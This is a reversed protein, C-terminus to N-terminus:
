ATALFSRAHEVRDRDLDGEGWYHVFRGYHQKAKNMEGREEYIRGLYYLSRIYATPSQLRDAAMRSVKLFREEALEPKGADLYAEGLFFWVRANDGGNAALLKEAQELERLGLAMDGRYQARYAAIEHRTRKWAPGPIGSTQEDYLASLRDSEDWNGRSAQILSEFLIGVLEADTGAGLQQARRAAGLAREPHDLLFLNAAVAVNMFGSVQGPTTAAAATQELLTMAETSRGQYLRLAARNLFENAKAWPMPLKGVEAALSDAAEWDEELLALGLDAFAMFPYGPRLERVRDLAAKSEELRGARMLLQARGNHVAFSEPNQRLFEEHVEFAKQVQGTDFYANALANRHGPFMEVTNRLIELHEIAEPYMGLNMMHSGAMNGRIDSLHPQRQLIELAIEIAKGQTRANRGHYWQQIYASEADTLRDVHEIAREAYELGKDMRGLNSNTVALKALAMAFEPDEEVAKEFLTIAEEEKLEGHLREAEVFYRYAVPSSTTVDALSRDTELSVPLAITQRVNRTLDDVRAFLANEGEAVISDSTLIEGTGAEQIKISIRINDGLKAFSGTIVTDANAKNAVENVVDFSTIREDLKEMDKLIQYLRDTGLVRLDPSQSLDTVLMDTLGSRLWDLEPDGSLNDFYLVAVSPRDKQAAVEQGPARGPSTGTGGGLLLWATLGAIAILAAAFALPMWKRGTSSQVAPISMASDPLAGSEIERRLGVLENRIDLASQFRKRPDKELCHAIIRGLHRPMQVNLTTVSDPSDRLISSILDASTEGQFPRRGTAMEYLIIGLSFIDSRHDLEKGQVQEPSMYPVTGLVHGEQTLAETPATEAKEDADERLKALGFDLVKVRDHQNVMVNAPKLDRHIIGKEHAAALADALPTAIDFFRDLQMGGRHIMDELGQGEVLEMTLFHVPAADGAGDAVSAEEVSYITVINPHNLAAVTEAERQFRQLREDDEALDHPLVKLAIRRKLRTDHAAFVEGMGGRGLREGIEYHALTKGIM